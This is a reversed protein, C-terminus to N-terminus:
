RISRFQGPVTENRDPAGDRAARWLAQRRRGRESIRGSCGCRIGSTAIRTPRVAGRRRRPASRWVATTTPRLPWGNPNGTKAMRTWYGIGRRQVQLDTDTPRYKGHWAFFFPHEVTHTAGLAKLELDNELSHNFLYRHVPEAALASRALSM